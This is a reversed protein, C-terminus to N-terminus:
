FAAIGNPTGLGTPGDWGTGATCLPAGCNGNNGTTVDNLSAAHSYLNGPNNTSTNGALAFVSALIPTAVSTGGFVLWGRVHFTDYVAVGTNPNAVASADAEARNSCGTSIGSQFSPKAYVNSCGSGAGGWASEARPSITSLTTGGVGIVSPLIAPWQATTNHGSDGTAATIAVGGVSYDGDYTKSGENGSWSNSVYNARATAYQEATSLASITASAAEVLLIKCNPCIASVMDVDLSEEEAWGTNTKNAFKHQTFCGSSTTCPPLGYQARYTALDSAANPDHYADVIAVTTGVGNGGSFSTLGYATQLDSPAYGSPSADRTKGAIDTRIWAQCRAYGISVAGCVRTAPGPRPWLGRQAATRVSSPAGSAGPTSNLAGNCGTLAIVVTVAAAVRLRM